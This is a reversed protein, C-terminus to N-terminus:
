RQIYESAYFLGVEELQRVWLLELEQFFCKLLHGGDWGSIYM